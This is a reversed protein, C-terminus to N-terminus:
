LETLRLDTSHTERMQGSVSWNRKFPPRMIAMAFDGIDAADGLAELIRDLLPDSPRVLREILNLLM